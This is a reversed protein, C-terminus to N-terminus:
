SAVRMAFHAALESQQCLSLVVTDKGQKLHAEGDPYFSVEVPSRLSDGPVTASSARQSCSCPSTSCSPCTM